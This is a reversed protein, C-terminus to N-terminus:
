RDDEEPLNRRKDDRPKTRAAMGSYAAGALLLVVILLAFLEGHMADLIGTWAVSRRALPLMIAPREIISGKMTGTFNSCGASPHPYVFISMRGDARESLQM